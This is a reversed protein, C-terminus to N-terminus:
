GQRAHWGYAIVGSWYPAKSPGLQMTITVDRNYKSKANFDRGDITTFTMEPTGKSAPLHLQWISLSASQNQYVLAYDYTGDDGVTRLFPTGGAHHGTILLSRNIKAPLKGFAPYRDTQHGVIFIDGNATNRLCDDVGYTVSEAYPRFVAHGPTSQKRVYAEFKGSWTGLFIKYKADCAVRACSASKGEGAVSCNQVINADGHAPRSAAAARAHVATGTTSALLVILAYRLGNKQM